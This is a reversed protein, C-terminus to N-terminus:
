MLLGTMFVTPDITPMHNIVWDVIAQLHNALWQGVRGLGSLTASLAAHAAEKAKQMAADWMSSVTGTVAEKANHAVENKFAPSATMWHWDRTGGPAEEAAHTNSADVQPILSTIPKLSRFPMVPAEATGGGKGGTSKKQKTGEEAMGRTHAASAATCATAIKVNMESQDLAHDGTAHWKQGADNHVDLGNKNDFDHLVKAGFGAVSTAVKATLGDMPGYM